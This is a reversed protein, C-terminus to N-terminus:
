HLRVQWLFQSDCVNKLSDQISTEIDAVRRSLKDRGAAEILLTICSVAVVRLGAFKDKCAERFLPLTNGLKCHRAILQLCGQYVAHSRRLPPPPTVPTSPPPIFHSFDSTSSETHDAALFGRSRLGESLNCATRPRQGSETCPGGGHQRDAQRRIVAARLEGAVAPGCSIM